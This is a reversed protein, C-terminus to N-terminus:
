QPRPCIIQVQLEEDTFCADYYDCHRAGLTIKLALYYTLYKPHRLTRVLRGAAM